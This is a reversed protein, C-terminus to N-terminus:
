NGWMELSRTLIRIAQDGKVTSDPDADGKIIGRWSLERLAYRSGPAISYMAGGDRGFAKMILYSFESLKIRDTGVRNKAIWGSDVLVQTARDEGSDDGILNAAVLVLYAADGVTINPSEVLSSYWSTNQAAAGFACFFFLFLSSVLRRSFRKQTNM